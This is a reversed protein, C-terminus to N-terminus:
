EDFGAVRHGGGHQGRVEGERALEVVAVGLGAREAGVEASIRPGTM